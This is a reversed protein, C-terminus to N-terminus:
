GDETARRSERQRRQRRGNLKGSATVVSDQAADGSVGSRDLYSRAKRICSALTEAENLCPMVTTLEV